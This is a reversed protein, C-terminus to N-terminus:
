STGAPGASESNAVPTPDGMLPPVWGARQRVRIAQLYSKDHTVM